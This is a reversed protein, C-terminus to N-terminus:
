YRRSATLWARFTPRDHDQWYLDEERKYGKTVSEATALIDDRWTRYGRVLDAHAESCRHQRIGKTADSRCPSRREPLANPWEALAEGTLPDLITRGRKRPVNTGYLRAASPRQLIDRM